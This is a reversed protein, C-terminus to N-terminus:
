RVALPFSMEVILNAFIYWYTVVLLSVVALLM